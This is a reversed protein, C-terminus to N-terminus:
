DQLYFESRNVADHADLAQEGLPLIRLVPSAVNFRLDIWGQANLSRALMTLEVLSISGGAIIEKAEHMQRDSILQLVDMEDMTTRM